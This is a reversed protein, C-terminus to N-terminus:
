DAPLPMEGDVLFDKRPFLRTGQEKSYFSVTENRTECIWTQQWLPMPRSFAKATFFGLNIGGDPDRVSRYEFGEIGAKRLGAGLQQTDTYSKPNTLRVEFRSFPLAQLCVGRSIGYAASFVTLETTLRGSPPSEQMGSWFIFRYYATEALASSLITSGYFLSPEPYSGFRSGYRLPPYRFPTSLLYHLGAAEPPTPPKGTELMEELLAQEQLDDVLTYTAIQELSEVVRIVQGSLPGPKAADKCATWIDM